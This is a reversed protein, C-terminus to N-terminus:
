VVGYVCTRLRVVAAAGVLPPLDPMILHHIPARVRVRLAPLQVGEEGEQVELARVEMEVALRLAVGFHHSARTSRLLVESGM